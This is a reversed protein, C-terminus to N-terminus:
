RASEELEQLPGHAFITDFLLANRPALLSRIQGQAFITYFFLTDHPALLARITLHHIVYFLFKLNLYLFHM